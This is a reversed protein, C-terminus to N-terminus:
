GLLGIAWQTVLGGAWLRWEEGARSGGYCGVM